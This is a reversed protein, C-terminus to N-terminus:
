VGKSVRAVRAGGTIAGVMKTRDRVLGANERSEGSPSAPNSGERLCRNFMADAFGAKAWISNAGSEGTSSSPNSGETGRHLSVSEFKLNGAVTIKTLRRYCDNKDGVSANVAVVFACHQM